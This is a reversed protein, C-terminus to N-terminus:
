IKLYIIELSKNEYRSQSVKLKPQSHTRDTSQASYMKVAVTEGQLFPIFSVASPEKLPFSIPTKNYGGM